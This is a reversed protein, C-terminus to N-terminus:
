TKGGNPPGVLMSGFRLNTTDFFQLFKEVFMATLIKNDTKAIQKTIDM